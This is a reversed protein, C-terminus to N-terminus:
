WHGGLGLTFYTEWRKSRFLREGDPRQVDLAGFMLNGGLRAGLQLPGLSYEAELVPGVTGLLTVNSDRREGNQEELHTAYGALGLEGCGLLVLAAADYHPSWCLGLGISQGSVTVTAGDGEYAAQPSGMFGLRAHLIPGIITQRGNPLTVFSAMRFTADYRAATLPLLGFSAGVSLMVAFKPDFHLKGEAVPEVSHGWRSAARFKSIRPQAIPPAPTTANATSPSSPAPAAGEPRLELAMAISLAEAVEECTTGQVTRPDTKGADGLRATLTGVYAEGERRIVVEFARQTAPTDLAVVEGGRTEVSSLFAARSPCGGVAVFSLSDPQAQAAAPAVTAFTALLSFSINTM